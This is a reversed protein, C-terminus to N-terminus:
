WCSGATSKAATTLLRGCADVLTLLRRCWVVLGQRWKGGRVRSVEPKRATPMMSGTTPKKRSHELWTAVLRSKMTRINVISKLRLRDAHECLQELTMKTGFSWSWQPARRLGVPLPEGTSESSVVKLSIKKCKLRRLSTSKYDYQTYVCSQIKVGFEFM